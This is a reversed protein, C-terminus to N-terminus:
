KTPIDIINSCFLCINCVFILLHHFRQAFLSVLTLVNKLTSIKSSLGSALRNNEQEMMSDSM